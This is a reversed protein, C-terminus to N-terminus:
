ATQEAESNNRALLFSEVENLQEPTNISLIDEPAVSNIVEVTKGTEKLMRPVETLYYENTLTNPELNDLCNWLANSEFVAYSPYVEHIELQEPTTNKHEIIACFKNQEDRLIRGYGTPDPIVSASSKEQLAVMEHVTSPRLLPGDGGLILINGEFDALADKCVLVAHGTGLQPEQLVYECNPIENKVISAGHGVVLIVRDAGAERVADIVWQVMPKGAVKHVVKPLDSDMRTGKGAALIIAALPTRTKDSSATM